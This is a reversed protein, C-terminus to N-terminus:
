WVSELYLKATEDATITKNCLSVITAKSFQDVVVFLMDYSLSMPLDTIFDMTITEWVATPIPNPQLPVKTRPKIKMAQCTAFRDVYSKVFTSMGPWWFDQSILKYTKWRGLHGIAIHSHYKNVIERQLEEDKPIYVQGRFLIVGDELNWEELGKTLSQPGSKLLTEL